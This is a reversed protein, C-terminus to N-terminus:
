PLAVLKAFDEGLQKCYIAATDGGKEEEYSETTMELTARVANLESMRASLTKDSQAAEGIAGYDPVLKLLLAVAEKGKASADDCKEAAVAAAGANAAAMLAKYDDGAV